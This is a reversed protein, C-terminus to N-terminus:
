WVTKVFAPFNMIELKYIAEPGLEPFAIVELSTICKALYAGAGGVTVLYVAKHEKISNSVLESRGGKGIMVKLGADLLAPTYKDMRASTTPGAAGSIEGPRAPSPGLYYIAQNLLPIPLDKGEKIIRFLREHAVDRATYITGTLEVYDGYRLESLEKTSSLPLVLKKSPVIRPTV